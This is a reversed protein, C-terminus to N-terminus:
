INVGAEEAIIKKARLKRITVATEVPSLGCYDSIQEKPSKHVKDLFHIVRWDATDPHRTSRALQRGARTLGYIEM